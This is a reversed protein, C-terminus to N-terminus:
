KRASLATYLTAIIHRRFCSHGQLSTGVIGIAREQMAREATTRTAPLTSLISEGSIRAVEAQSQQVYRTVAASINRRPIEVFDTEITLLKGSADVCVIEGSAHVDFSKIGKQQYVGEGERTIVSLQGDNGLMILFNGQPDVNVDVIGRNATASNVREKRDAISYECVQGKPNIYFVTQSVQDIVPHSGALRTSEGSATIIRFERDSSDVTAYFNDSSGKAREEFGDRRVAEALRWTGSTFHEGNLIYAVGQNELMITQSGNMVGRRVRWDGTLFEEASSRLESSSPQSKFKKAVFSFWLDTLQDKLEIYSSPFSGAITKYGGFPGRRLPASDSVNMDKTTISLPTDLSAQQRADFLVVNTHMGFQQLILSQDGIIHVQTLNARGINRESSRPRLIELLPHVGEPGPM